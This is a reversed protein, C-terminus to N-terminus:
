SRKQKQLFLAVSNIHAAMAKQALRVNGEQIAELIEQHDLTRAKPNLVGLGLREWLYMWARAVEEEMSTLVPNAALKVVEVEFAVTPMIIGEDNIVPAGERKILESLRTLDESTARQVAFPMAGCEIVQRTEALQIIDTTDALSPLGIGNSMESDFGAVFAGRGRHSSLIGKAALSLYAERVTNRSVKLKEAMEREAPLRQGPAMNGDKIYALVAKVTLDHILNKPELNM